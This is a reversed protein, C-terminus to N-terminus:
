CNAQLKHKDNEPKLAINKIIYTYIKLYYIKENVKKFINQLLM